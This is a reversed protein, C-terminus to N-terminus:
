LGPLSAGGGWAAVAGEDADAGEGAGAGVGSGADAWEDAGTGADEDSAGGGSAALGAGLRASGSCHHPASVCCNWCMAALARCSAARVAMGAGDEGAGRARREAWVAVAPLVRALGLGLAAFGARVALDVVLVAALVAVLRWARVGALVAAWAM